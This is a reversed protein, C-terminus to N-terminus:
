GPCNRRSTIDSATWTVTIQQPKLAVDDYAGATTAGIHRISSVSANTLDVALVTLGPITAGGPGRPRDGGQDHDRLNRKSSGTARDISQHM